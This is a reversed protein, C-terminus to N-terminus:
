GQVKFNTDELYIWSNACTQQKCEYEVEWEDELPTSGDLPIFHLGDKDERLEFKGEPVRDEMSYNEPILVYGTGLCVKCAHMMSPFFVKESGHPVEGIYWGFVASDGRDGGIELETGILSESLGTSSWILAAPIPSKSKRNTTKESEDTVRGTPDLGDDNAAIFEKIRYKEVWQQAQDVWDLLYPYDRPDIWEGNSSLRWKTEAPLDAVEIDDNTM